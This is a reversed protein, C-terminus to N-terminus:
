LLALKVTFVHNPEPFEQVQRFAYDLVFGIDAAIKYDIGAGVTFGYIYDDMNEMLLNYGGRLFLTNMFGYEM